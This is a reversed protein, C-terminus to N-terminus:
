ATGPFLSFDYFDKFIDLFPLLFNIFGIPLFIHGYLFHIFSDNVMSLHVNELTIVKVCVLISSEPQFSCCFHNFKELLLSVFLQRLFFTLFLLVVFM